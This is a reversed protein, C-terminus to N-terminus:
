FDYELNVKSSANRESLLDRCKTGCWDAWENYIGHIKQTTSPAANVGGSFRYKHGSTFHEGAGRMEPAPNVEIKAKSLHEAAVVCGSLMFATTLFFAFLVLTRFKM